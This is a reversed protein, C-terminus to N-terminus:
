KQKGREKTERMGGGAGVQAWGRWRERLHRGNAWGMENRTKKKRDKARKAVSRDSAGQGAGEFKGLVDFAAPLGSFKGSLCVSQSISGIGM